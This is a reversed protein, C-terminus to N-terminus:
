SAVTTATLLFGGSGSMKIVPHTREPLVQLFAVAWFGFHIFM